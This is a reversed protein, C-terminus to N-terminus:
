ATPEKLQAHQPLDHRTWEHGSYERAMRQGETVGLTHLTDGLGFDLAWRYAKSYLLSLAQEETLGAKIMGEMLAQGLIYAPRNFSFAEKIADTYDKM